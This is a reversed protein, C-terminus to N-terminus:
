GNRIEEFFEFDNKVNTNVILQEKMLALEERNQVELLVKALKKEQPDELYLFLDGKSAYIMKALM